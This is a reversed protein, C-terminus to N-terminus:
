ERGTSLFSMTFLHFILQCLLLVLAATQTTCPLCLLNFCSDDLFLKIVFLFFILLIFMPVHRVPTTMGFAHEGRIRGHGPYVSRDVVLHWEPDSSLHATNQLSVSKSDPGISM